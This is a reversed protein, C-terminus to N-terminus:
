KLKDFPYADLIGDKSLNTTLIRNILMIKQKKIPQFLESLKVYISIIKV